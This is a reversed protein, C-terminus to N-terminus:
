LEANIMNEISELESAYNNNFLSLVWQCEDQRADAVKLTETTNGKKLRSRIHERTREQVAKYISQAAETRLFDDIVSLEQVRKEWQNIQNIADPHQGTFRAKLTAIKESLGVDIM